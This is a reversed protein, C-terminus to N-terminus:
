TSKIRIRPGFASLTRMRYTRLIKRLQLIPLRLCIGMQRLCKGQSAAGELAKNLLMDTNWNKRPSGNIVLIQM